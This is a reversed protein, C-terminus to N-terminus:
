TLCMPKAPPAAPLLATSVTKPRIPSTTNVFESSIVTLFTVAPRTVAVVKVPSTVPSTVPLIVPAAAVNVPLTM